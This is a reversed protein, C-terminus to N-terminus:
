LQGTQSFNHSIAPPFFSTGSALREFDYWEADYTIRVLSYSLSTQVKNLCLLQYSPSGRNLDLSTHNVM